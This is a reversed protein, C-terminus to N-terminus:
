VLFTCTKITPAVNIVDVNNLFLINGNNSADVVLSNKDNNGNFLLPIQDFVGPVVNIFQISASSLDLFFGSGTKSAAEFYEGRDYQYPNV